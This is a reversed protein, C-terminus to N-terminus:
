LVAALNRIEKLMKTLTSDEHATQMNYKTQPYMLSDAPLGLAAEFMLGVIKTIKIKM